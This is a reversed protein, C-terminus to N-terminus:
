VVRVARRGAQRHRPHAEEWGSALRRPQAHADCGAERRSPAALQTPQRTAAGVSPRARKAAKNAGADDDDLGVRERGRGLDRDICAAAFSQLSARDRARAALQAFLGRRRGASRSDRPRVQEEDQEPGSSVNTRTAPRGSQKATVASPSPNEGERKRWVDQVHPRTDDYQWAEASGLCATESPRARAWVVLWVSETPVSPV